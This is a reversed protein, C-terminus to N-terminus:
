MHFLHQIIQIFCFDDLRVSISIFLINFANGKREKSISFISNNRKIKNMDKERSHNLLIWIGDISISMSLSYILTAHMIIKPECLAAEFCVCVCVSDSDSDSHFPIIYLYVSNLSEFWYVLAHLKRVMSHAHNRM